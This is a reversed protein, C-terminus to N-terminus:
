AAVHRSRQRMRWAFWAHILGGSPVACLASGLGFGLMRWVSATGASAFWQYAAGIAFGFVALRAWKRLHAGRQKAIVMAVVTWLGANAWRLPHLPAAALWGFATGLGASICLWLLHQAKTARADRTAWRM